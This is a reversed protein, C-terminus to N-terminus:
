PTAPDPGDVVSMLYEYHELSSGQLRSEPVARVEAAIGAPLLDNAALEALANLQSELAVADDEDVALWVILQAVVLAQGADLAGVLDTIGDAALGRGSPDSTTLERVLQVLTTSPVTM